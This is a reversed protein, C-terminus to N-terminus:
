CCDCYVYVCVCVGRGMGSLADAQYSKDLNGDKRTLYTGYFFINPVTGNGYQLGTSNYRYVYVCIYTYM